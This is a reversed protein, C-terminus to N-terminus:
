IPTLAGADDASSPGTTTTSSDSPTANTANASPLRETRKISAACWPHVWARHCWVLEGYTSGCVECPVPLADLERMLDVLSASRADDFPRYACDLDHEEIRGCNGCQSKKEETYQHTRHDTTNSDDEATSGRHSGRQGGEVASHDEASADVDSRPTIRRAEEPVLDLIPVGRPGRQFTDELWGHEVLFFVVAGAADHNVGTTKELWRASAMVDRGDIHASEMLMGVVAHAAPRSVGTPLLRRNENIWALVEERWSLKIPIPDHKPRRSM